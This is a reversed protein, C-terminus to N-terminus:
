NKILKKLRTTEKHIYGYSIGYKKQMDRLSMVSRELLLQQQVWSLDQAKM